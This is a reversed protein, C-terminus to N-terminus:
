RRQNGLLSWRKMKQREKMVLDSDGEEGEGEDKQTEGEDEM